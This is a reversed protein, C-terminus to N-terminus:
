TVPFPRIVSNWLLDAERVASGIGTVHSIHRSREAVVDLVGTFFVQYEQFHEPRGNVLVETQIVPHRVNGWLKNELM